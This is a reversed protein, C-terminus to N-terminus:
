AGSFLAALAPRKSVRELWAALNPYASTDIKAFSLSWGLTTVADIDVLTCRDSVLYARGELHKDLVRLAKHSEGLLLEAQAPNAADKASTMGAAMMYRFVDGHLSVQTWVLWTLAQLHEPSSTAPWLGKEVGFREGLAIQIAVSEFIPTGDLVLTPVQGNPNLALFEPKKQDGAQLDLTVTEYPVGLEVLSAHVRGASSMPSFYFVISM